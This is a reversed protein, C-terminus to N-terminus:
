RSYFCSLGKALAKKLYTIEIRIPPRDKPQIATVKQCHDEIGMGFGKKHRSM